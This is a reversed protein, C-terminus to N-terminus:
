SRAPRVVNPPRGPRAAARVFRTASITSRASRSERAAPCSSQADARLCTRCQARETEVMRGSLGVGQVAAFRARLGANGHRSRAHHRRHMEFQGSQESRVEHQRFRLRLTGPQRPDMAGNPCWPKCQGSADPSSGTPCCQLGPQMQDPPCSRRRRRRSGSHAAARRCPRFCGAPLCGAAACCLDASAGSRSTAWTAARRTTTSAIMTISSIPRRASACEAAARTRRSQRAPRRCKGARIAAATRRARSRGIQAVARRHVVPLRRVLRPQARWNCRLRLRHRRRWQWQPIAARFGIAYEDPVQQWIRPAGPYSNVIAYRLVRGIGDPTLAEFDYAGTPAPREALLMRGRDDFTIKSIETPGAAPPVNIERTADDAFSGDPALGVSWVQLGAAVAYYLRGRFVGLGFISGSRRRM